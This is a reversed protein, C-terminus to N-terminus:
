KITVPYYRSNLLKDVLGQEDGVKGAFLTAYVGLNEFDDKTASGGVMPLGLRSAAEYALMNATNDSFGSETEIATLGEVSFLGDGLPKDIDKKYPHAAVIAGGMSRVIKIVENIKFEDGSLENLRVPDPLYILMHGKDTRVEKGFLVILGLERGYDRLKIDNESYGEDTFVVGDLITNKARAVIEYPDLNSGKARNSHVHLDLFM